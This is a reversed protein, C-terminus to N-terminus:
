SYLISFATLTHVGKIGYNGRSIQIMLNNEGKIEMQPSIDKNVGEIFKVIKDTHKVEQDEKIKNYKGRELRCM